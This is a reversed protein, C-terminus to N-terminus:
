CLFFCLNVMQHCVVLTARNTDSGYDKIHNRLPAAKWGRKALHQKTRMTTGVDYRCRTLLHIDYMHLLSSLPVRTMYLVYNSWPLARSKKIFILPTKCTRFHKNSGRVRHQPYEFYHDWHSSKKSYGFCLVLKLILLSITAFLASYGAKDPGRFENFIYRLIQSCFPSNQVFIQPLFEYLLKDYMHYRNCYSKTWSRYRKLGSLQSCRGKFQYPTNMVIVFYTLLRIQIIKVRRRNWFTQTQTVHTM